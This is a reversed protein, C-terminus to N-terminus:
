KKIIKLKISGNISSFDFTGRYFAQKKIMEIKDIKGIYHTFISKKLHRIQNKKHPKKILPM